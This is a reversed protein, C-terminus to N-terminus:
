NHLYLWIYCNHDHFCSYNNELKWHTFQNRFVFLYTFYVIHPSAVMYYNVRAPFRCPFLIRTCMMYPCNIDIWQVNFTKADKGKKHCNLPHWLVVGKPLSKTDTSGFAVAVLTAPHMVCVIVTIPLSISQCNVQTIFTNFMQHLPFSNRVKKWKHICIHELTNSM